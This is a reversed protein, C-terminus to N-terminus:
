PSRHYLKFYTLFPLLPFSPPCSLHLTLPLIWGYCNEAFPLAVEGWDRLTLSFHFGHPAVTSSARFFLDGGVLSPPLDVLFMKLFSSPPPSRTSTLGLLSRHSPPRLPPLPHGLLAFLALARLLATDPFRPISLSLALSTRLPPLFSPLLHRYLGVEHHRFRHFHM